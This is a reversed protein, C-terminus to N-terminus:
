VQVAALLQAIRELKENVVTPQTAKKAEAVERIAEKLAEAEQGPGYTSQQTM